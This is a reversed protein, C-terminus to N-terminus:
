KSLLLLRHMMTFSVAGAPIVSLVYRSDDDAGETPVVTLTLIVRGVGQEWAEMGEAVTTHGVPAVAAVTVVGGVVIPSAIGQSIM